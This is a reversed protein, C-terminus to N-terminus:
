IIKLNFYHSFILDRSSSTETPARTKFPFTIGTHAFSAWLKINLFYGNPLALAWITNKLKRHLITFPLNGFLPLSLGWVLRSLSNWVL